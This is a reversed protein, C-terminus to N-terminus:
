ATLDCAGPRLACWGGQGCDLYFYNSPAHIINFGKESVLKADENSIWVIVLTENLLSVDHALVMEEWVVPTMGLGKLTARTEVTFSDLGQM